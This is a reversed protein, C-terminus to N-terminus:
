IFFIIELIIVVKQMKNVLKTYCILPLLITLSISLKKCIVEGQHINGYTVHLQIFLISVLLILIM